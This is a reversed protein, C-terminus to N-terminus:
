DRGPDLSAELLDPPLTRTFRAVDRIAHDFQALLRTQVDGALFFVKRAQVADFGEPLAPDNKSRDLIIGDKKADDIMRIKTSYSAGEIFRTMEELTVPKGRLHCTLMGVFLEAYRETWYRRNEFVEFISLRMLGLVGLFELYVDRGHRANALPETSVAGDAAM